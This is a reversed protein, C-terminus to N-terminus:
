SLLMRMGALAVLTGFLKKLLNRPIKRMLYAGIWGGVIAPLTIVSLLTLDPTHGQGWYLLFSVLTVPLMVCLSLVMLDKPNSTYSTYSASKDLTPLLTVLLIGGAAGLLGNLAGAFFGLVALWLIHSSQHPTPPSFHKASM